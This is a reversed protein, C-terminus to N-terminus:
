SVQSEKEFLYEVSKTPFFERKIRMAEDLRFSAKGNTKDVVTPYRQDLFKAIDKKTIGERAMEAVLNKYM